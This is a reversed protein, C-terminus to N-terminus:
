KIAADYFPNPNFLVLKFLLLACITLGVLIIFLSLTQYDFPKKNQMM